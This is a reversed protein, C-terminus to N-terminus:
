AKKPHWDLELQVKLLDAMVPIVSVKGKGQAFSSNNQAPLQDFSLNRVEEMKAQITYAAQNLRTASSSSIASTKLLYNFAIVAVMFLSSAILLEILTFGRKNM